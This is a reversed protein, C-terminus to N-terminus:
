QKLFRNLTSYLLKPNIPKALHADMGADKSQRIDEDFANATMAIIPITKSDSRNLSRIVKAAEIGNMIPMRIDMLIADYYNIESNNFMAVAIRGNDAHECKVGKKELLSKAIQTNLPHDECILIRKSILNDFDDNIISNGSCDSDDLAASLQSELIITFETGVGQKSIFSITGGMLEILKKAISLGLGSGDQTPNEQEFKEYLRSQFEESMGIGNDKIIFKQVVSEASKNLVTVELSVTGGKPTFKIANSLLNIFIQQLRQKDILAICDKDVTSYDSIFTISKKDAIEKIIPISTDWFSVISLPSYKIYTKNNEMKSIDLVENILGLLYKGSENINKLYETKKQSDACSVLEDDSFGIIANMPTRMDHSMRSFFESKAQNKSVTNSLSEIADILQDIESIGLRELEFASNPDAKLVKESLSTIPSAFHHCIVVIGLISILASFTYSLVLVHSINNSFSLLSDQNVFGILALRENDFPTNSNYIDFYSISGCVPVINQSSFSYCNDSLQVKTNIFKSNSFSQKYFVGSTAIPSYSTFSTGYGSTQVLAYASTKQEILEDSPMLSAIYDTSLEIGLVGYPTGSSGILPVSYSIVKTDSGSISHPMCLYALDDYDTNPNEFAALLPKYFYNNDSKFDFTYFPEWLSDLSYGLNAIISAPARELLLDETNTYGASQDLDRICLGYKIQASGDTLPVYTDSNNLILYIGNVNNKRLTQTLIPCAEVLLQKQLNTDKFFNSDLADKEYLTNIDKVATDLNTWNLTFQTKLDRQRNAVKESLIDYSNTKLRNIVSGGFVVAMLISMQLIMLLFVPFFVKKFISNKNQFIKM